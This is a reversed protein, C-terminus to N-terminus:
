VTYIKKEEEMSSFSLFFLISVDNVANFQRAKTKSSEERMDLLIQKVQQNPSISRVRKSQNVMICCESSTLKKEKEWFGM